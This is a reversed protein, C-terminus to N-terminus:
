GLKARYRLLTSEATGVYLRGELVAVIDRRRTLVWARIGPNWHIPEATRLQDYAAYPSAILGADFLNFPTGPMQRASPFSVRDHDKTTKAEPVRSRM